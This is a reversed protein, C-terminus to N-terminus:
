DALRRQPRRDMGPLATTDVGSQQLQWALDRVVRDLGAPDDAECRVTIKPETGSARLLWWGDRTSVRIGDTTDVAVGAAALRASVERVVAAKRKEPCPLRLEPTAATRPLSERFERLSCGLRTMANLVCLAVHLADDTGNWCDAYLIHGSMEGALPANVRLMVDRVLVYGSPAMLPRGGFREIGDFLVRSSKVDGVITAGPQTQLTDAALLLLVQDPWLIAGTDDVVGIRDGDGDFAIGLDARQAVVASQLECLNEAVSPDPHHAPFRGDVRSNLLTHRGPLRQTFAEIVAGVAGNGCDWVIHLERAAHRATLATVYAQAVDRVSVAGRSTELPETQVLSRLSAGYIPGSDFLLKFGNQDRPNHSATVMIGGDFGFAHMAFYLQPTPGMGIQEVNMGGRLLGDVLAQELQPSSLRGDRCVAIRRKGQERAVTAYALGLARADNLGLERGVAGRLDYSRVAAPNIRPTHATM